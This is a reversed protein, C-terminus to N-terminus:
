CLTEIFAMIVPQLGVYKIPFRARHEWPPKPQSQTSAAVGMRVTPFPFKFPNGVWQVPHQLWRKNRAHRCCQLM